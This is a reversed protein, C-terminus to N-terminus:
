RRGPASVAREAGGPVYHCVRPLRTGAVFYVGAAV